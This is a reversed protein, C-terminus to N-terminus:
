SRIHPNRLNGQAAICTLARSLQYPEGGRPHPDHGIFKYEAFAVIDRPVNTRQYCHYRRNQKCKHTFKYEYIGDCVVFHCSASVAGSVTRNALVIVVIRLGM